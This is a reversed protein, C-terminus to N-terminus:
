YEIVSNSSISFLLFYSHSDIKEISVKVLHYMASSENAQLMKQALDFCFLVFFLCLLYKTVEWYLKVLCFFLLLLIRHESIIYM